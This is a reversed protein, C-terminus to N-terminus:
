LRSVNLEEFDKMEYQTGLIENLTTISKLANITSVGQGTEIRKQTDIAIGARKAFARRSVGSRLRLMLLTPKEQISLM